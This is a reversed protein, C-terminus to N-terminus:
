QQGLAELEQMLKKFDERQRLPALNADNKLKAADKFGKSVADRLMKMAEDGYFQMETQRKDADLQDDKEVIPMYQALACAADYADAPPDWGLDRRKEATAVAASRDGLGACSWTLVGLHNRYFQRYTLHRPNAQLAAQHYPQAEELKQRAVAFDRQQILLHAINVLTAAVSNRYDPVSPFDAALQKQLALAEAYAAEAERLRGTNKLLVGLNTHSSALDQRFDPRTPFDTALQKFIALADVYAAEAEKQRGTDKLLVGLNLHSRALDQRFDPRTPFDAALQKQLALADAYAAEAERLRGTNKFLNGLNTHSSALEQRFGPRTPFDAALQKQLALADAYAAEAERLRGTNKFLNGLNTHSSALEQRFGPRTPFDAALQKQLALADA